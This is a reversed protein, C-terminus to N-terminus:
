IEKYVFSFEFRIRTEIMKGDLMVPLWKKRMGWVLEHFRFDLDDNVKKTVLINEIGEQTVDFEIIMEKGPLSKIESSQLVLNQELYSGVTSFDKDNFQPYPLVNLISNDIAYYSVLHFAEYQKVYNIGIIVEGFERFKSIQKLEQSYKRQNVFHYFIKKQKYTRTQLVMEHEELSIVDYQSQTLNPNRPRFYSGGYDVYMELGKDFPALAIFVKRKGFSFKLYNRANGFEGGEKNGLSDTIDICVWNGQLKEELTQGYGIFPLLIAIIFVNRM